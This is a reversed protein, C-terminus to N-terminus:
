LADSRRHTNGHSNRQFYRPITSLIAGLYHMVNGNFPKIIYDNNLCRNGGYSEGSKNPGVTVM